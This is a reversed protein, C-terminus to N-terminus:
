NERDDLLARQEDSFLTTEDFLLGSMQNRSLNLALRFDTALIQVGIFRAEQFDTQDLNAGLLGAGHLVSRTLDARRLNSGELSTHVLGAFRMSAHRLDADRLDAEHLSASDLDANELNVRRMKASGLYAGVLSAGRMEANAFDANMLKASSLDAALARAGRFIAYPMQSSSASFADCEAGELIIAAFALRDVVFESVRLGPAILLLPHGSLALGHLSARIGFGGRELEIGQGAEENKRADWKLRSGISLVALRFWPALDNRWTHPKDGRFRPEESNAEDQCFEILRNSRSDWLPRKLRQLLFEFCQDEVVLLPAGLLRAVLTNRKQENREQAVLALTSDWYRAVLFEEFSKHGFLIEHNQGHPDAQLALLVGVRVAEFTLSSADDLELDTRLVATVDYSTMRKFEAARVRSEWAIRSLLWLMAGARSAPAEVSADDDLILKKRRLYMELTAGAAAVPGHVEADHECKGRAVQMLFREYLEARNAIGTEKSWTMAIMFLLIPTRALEALGRPELLTHDVMDGESLINWRALWDKIQAETFPEVDLISTGKPLKELMPVVGKRSFVIAKQREGLMRNLDAFLSEVETSGLAIEDLGDLIYHVAESQLPPNHARDEVSRDYGLERAQRQLATRIADAPKVTHAVMDQGCRIFLPFPVSTSPKLMELADRAWGLALMKATLSKGHGFDGRVIVIKSTELHSEVLTRILDETRRTADKPDVHVAKPEVYIEELPMPPLGRTETGFVHMSGWTSIRQVILERLMRPADSALAFAATMFGPLAAAGEAYETRFAREFELKSGPRQFLLPEMEGDFQLEEATFAWWLAAYVPSATPNEVIAALLDIAAIPEGQTSLEGMRDAAMALRQKWDKARATKEKGRTRWFSRKAAFPAMGENGGWHALCAAGFAQTAVLVHKGILDEPASTPASFRGLFEKGEGFLKLVASADDSSWAWKDKAELAGLGLELAKLFVGLLATEALAM